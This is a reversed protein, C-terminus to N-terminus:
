DIFKEKFHKIDMVESELRTTVYWREQKRRSLLDEKFEMKKDIMKAGDRTIRLM